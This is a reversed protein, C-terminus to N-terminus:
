APLTQEKKQTIQALQLGRVVGLAKLQEDRDLQLYIKTIEEQEKHVEMWEEATLRKQTM